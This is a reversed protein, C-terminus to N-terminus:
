AAKLHIKTGTAAITKILLDCSVSVTAGNKVASVKSRAVGSLKVIENVNLDSESMAKVAISSLEAKYKMLAVDGKSLALIEGLEDPNRAVAHKPRNKNKNRMKKRWIKPLNEFGERPLKSKASRPRRQRMNFAHFVLIGFETDIVHFTRFTGTRDSVRIESAGAAVSSMSRIDPMGVSEGKQLRTLVAGLEKRIEDPWDHIVKRAPEFIRVTKWGPATMLFLQGM